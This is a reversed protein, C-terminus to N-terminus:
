ETIKVYINRGRYTQKGILVYTGSICLHYLEHRYEKCRICFRACLPDEMLRSGNM